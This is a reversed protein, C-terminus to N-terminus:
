NGMTIALTYNIYLEVNRDDAQRAMVPSALGDVKVDGNTVALASRTKAIDETILGLLKTRYQEPNDVALLAHGLEYRAKGPLQLTKIFHAATAGATYINTNERSFPVLIFLEQSAAPESWYGSSIGYSSQYQGLAVAGPSIRVQGEQRAQQRILVTAQRLEEYALATDKQDSYIRAPVSVFDAPMGLHVAVTRPATVALTIAAGDSVGSSIGARMSLAVLTAALVSSFKKM